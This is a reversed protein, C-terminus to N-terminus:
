VINNIDSKFVPSEIAHSPSQSSVVLASQFFFVIM